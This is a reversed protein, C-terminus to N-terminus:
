QPTSLKTQPPAVSLASTITYTLFIQGAILATLLVLWIGIINPNKMTEGFTTSMTVIGGFFLILSIATGGILGTVVADM